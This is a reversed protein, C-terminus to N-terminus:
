PREKFPHALSHPGQLIDVELFIPKRGSEVDWGTM